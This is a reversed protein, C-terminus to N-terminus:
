EIGFYRKENEKEEPTKDMDPIAEVHGEIAEIARIQVTVDAQMARLKKLQEM